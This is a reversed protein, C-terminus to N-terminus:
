PIDPTAPSPSAIIQSSLSPQRQSGAQVSASFDDRAHSTRRARKPDSRQAQGHLWNQYARRSANRGTNRASSDQRPPRTIIEDLQPLRESDYLSNVTGLTVPVLVQLDHPNANSGRTYTASKGDYTSESETPRYDGNRGNIASPESPSPWYQPLTAHHYSVTLRNGALCAACTALSYGVDAVPGDPCASVRDVFARGMAPTVTM